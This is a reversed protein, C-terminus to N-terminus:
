YRAADSEACGAVSGSLHQISAVEHCLVDATPLNKYTLPLGDVSRCESM